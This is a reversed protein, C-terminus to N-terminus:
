ANAGEDDTEKGIVYYGNQNGSTNNIRLRANVADGVVLNNLQSHFEGGPNDVQVTIEFTGDGDVDIERFIDAAGEGGIETIIVAGTDATAGSVTLDGGDGLADDGSKFSDNVGM